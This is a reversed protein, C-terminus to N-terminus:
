QLIVAIACQCTSYIKQQINQNINDERHIKNTTQPAKTKNVGGTAELKCYYASGLASKCKVLATRISISHRKMM